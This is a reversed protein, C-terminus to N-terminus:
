QIVQVDDWRGKNLKVIIDHPLHCGRFGLVRLQNWRRWDISNLIKEGDQSGEALWTNYSLDLVELLPCISPLRHLSLPFPLNILVMNKITLPLRLLASSALPTSVLIFTNLIDPTDGEADWDNAQDKKSNDLPMEADDINRGATPSKRLLYGEPLSATPGVVLLEGAIHGEEGFLSFLSSSPLPSHIAADRVLDLRLHSPLFPVVCQTFESPSTLSLLHRLCVLTLPPVISQKRTEQPEPKNFRNSPSDPIHSFILSLAEGRWKPTDRVDQDTTRIWSKPPGPGAYRAGASPTTTPNSGLSLSAVAESSDTEYNMKSISKFLSPVSRDSSLSALNLSM